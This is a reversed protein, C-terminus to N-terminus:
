QTLFYLLTIPVKFTDKAFSPDFYRSILDFKSIKFNQFKILRFGKVHDTGDTVPMGQDGERVEAHVSGWSTRRMTM